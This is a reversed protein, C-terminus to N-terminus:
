DDDEEKHQNIEEALHRAADEAQEEEIFAHAMGKRAYWNGVGAAAISTTGDQTWTAMIQVADFHEGLRAAAEELLGDAAPADMLGPMDDGIPGPAAPAGAFGRAACALLEARGSGAHVELDAAFGGSESAHEWTKGAGAMDHGDRVVRVVIGGLRRIMRVENEFRVDSFVVSRGQELACLAAAGAKAVWFDEAAARVYDTGVFQLLQRPTEAELGLPGLLLGTAARLAPLSEDIAVPQAFSMDKAPGDLISLPLDFVESVMQKIPGAFSMVAWRPDAAALAAAFTDKGHRAKGTVGILRPVTM